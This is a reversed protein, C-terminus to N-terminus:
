ETPKLAALKAPPLALMYTKVPQNRENRAVGSKVHLQKLDAAITSQSRGTVEALRAQTTPQLRKLAALTIFVAM